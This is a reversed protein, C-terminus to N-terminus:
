DQEAINPPIITNLVVNLFIETIDHRDIKNTSSVVSRDCTMYHQISYMKGERSKFACRQRHYVSIIYTIIFGVVMCDRDPRGRAINSMKSKEIPM